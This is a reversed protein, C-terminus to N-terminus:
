RPRSVPWDFGQVYTGLLRAGRRRPCPTKIAVLLYDRRTSRSARRERSDRDIPEHHDAVAKRTDQVPKYLGSYDYLQDRSVVAVFGDESNALTTQRLTEAPGRQTTALCGPCHPGEAGCGHNPQCRLRAAPKAPGPLVLHARPRRFGVFRPALLGGHHPCPPRSGM